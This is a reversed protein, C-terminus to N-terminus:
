KAQDPADSLCLVVFGRSGVGFVAQTQIRGALLYGVSLVLRDITAYQLMHNIKM